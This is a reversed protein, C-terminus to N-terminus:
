SVSTPVPSRNSSGKTPRVNLGEPLKNPDRDPNRPTLGLPFIISISKDLKNLEINRSLIYYNGPAPEFAWVKNGKLAAYLSYVGVNAGIDWFVDNPAFSNLWAITEPEKTFLTRARMAPLKGPCFFALPGFQTKQIVIPVLKEAFRASIVAAYRMGLIEITKAFIRAGRELVAEKAQKINM